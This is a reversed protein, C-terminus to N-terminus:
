TGGGTEGDDEGQAERQKARTVGEDVGGLDFMCVAFM